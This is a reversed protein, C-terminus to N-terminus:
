EFGKFDSPCQYRRKNRKRNQIGKFLKQNDWDFILSLEHTGISASRLRSLTLDFSYTVRMTNLKSLPVNMGLSAIFSDYSNGTMLFTRNRLWFGAVFPKNVIYAGVTFTQFQNQREFIIAPTYILDGILLNASAHLNFKIPLHYSDGLLADKPQTLHHAAGGFTITYTRIANSSKKRKKNFRVAFGSGFDAFTATNFSPPIFASTYVNGFVEDYNDSFTFRSWDVSKTVLGGSFGVQFVLNRNEVLRYAYYLNAGTTRLRGEGAVDTYALAGVSVKNIAEAEFSASSTNFKGPIPTWLSRSNIRLTFGNNIATMGPNYYVPNNYFQSFNPDQSWAVTSILIGMIFAFQKM